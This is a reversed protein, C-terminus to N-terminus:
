LILLTKIFTPAINSSNTLKNLNLKIVLLTSCYRSLKCQFYLYTSLFFHNQRRHKMYTKMLFAHSIWSFTIADNLKNLNLKIVLLTSCYRCLKCQFYLYTSLFIVAVLTKYQWYVISIVIWIGTILDKSNGTNTCTIYERHRFLFNQCEKCCSFIYSYM